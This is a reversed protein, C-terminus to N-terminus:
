PQKGGPQTRAHGRGALLRRIAEAKEDKSLPLSLIQDIAAHFPRDIGEDPALAGSEAGGQQSVGTKGPSDPAVELGKGGM